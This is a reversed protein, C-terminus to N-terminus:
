GKERLVRVDGKRKTIGQGDFYNLLPIIYKRTTALKQRYCSATIEGKEKLLSVLIEKAEEVKKQAFLYNEIELIEGREKLLEIVKALKKEKPFRRVLEEKDPPSFGRETLLSLLEKMLRAEDESISLHFDPLRIRDKELLLLGEAILDQLARERVVDAMIEKLGSELEVKKLGTKTPATQHFEGVLKLIKEKARQYSQRTIYGEDKGPGFPINLVLGEETLSSLVQKLGSLGVMKGIERETIPNGGRHGIIEYVVVKKESSNLRALHEIFVPDSRKERKTEVELVKGGGITLQPSFSRLIFRDGMELTLPEESFIQAYGEEGPQLEEKALLAIRGLTEKTGIHLKLVMRNKIPFPNSSLTQLFVNFLRTSQYGKPEILVDGRLVEGREEGLLNIGVREGISAEVVEKNHREIRRVRVLAGKPAIELLDGVQCRGSLITGCVVMGFGKIKFSRDIPMRFYGRDEKKPIKQCEQWLLNKLEEIGEGTVTSTPIIPASKLYSDKVLEKIEARVLSYVEETVTDRKTLAIVGRKLGLLKTIEFHERTQPRVGENAAVVLLVLDITQAGAIMHRIFKEHGPVDIITAEEGLFAFGLDTTMGREKEEKLRDPDTGTLAKILSTKGHDIHGATGIVWHRAM